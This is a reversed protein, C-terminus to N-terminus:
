TLKHHGNSFDAKQCIVWKVNNSHSRVKSQSHLALLKAKTLLVATSKLCVCAQQFSSYM